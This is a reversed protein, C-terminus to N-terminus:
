VALFYRHFAIEASLEPHFATVLMDDQQAAIIGRGELEALVEVGRGPNSFLPARIFFVRIPKASVKPMSISAEFSDLQRGFANRNATIDIAGLSVQGKIGGDIKKALLIAGACTGWVPMGNRIRKRLPSLLASTILLKGVTTSEGGPIILRDVKALDEPLRVAMSKAGLMDLIDLHEKFDGQLSLVGVINSM